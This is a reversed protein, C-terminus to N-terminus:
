GLDQRYDIPTDFQETVDQGLGTGDDFGFADRIEAVTFHQTIEWGALTDISGEECGDRGGAALNDPIAFGIQQALGILDTGGKVSLCIDTFSNHGAGEIVVLRKPAAMGEYTQEIEEIPVLVDVLAAINMSPKDPAPVDARGAAAWGVAVDVQPESLASLAARGGASHGVAAVLETDALGDLEGGADGVLAITEMLVAVDKAPDRVVQGTLLAGRNREIHDPAAVVFGWSAIGRALASADLRYSGFGHSFLVLPFPGDSSSAVDRYTDTMEVDLVSAPIDAPLLAPAAAALDPPLADLQSYSAPELGETAGDQAPYWVEVSRDALQLTTVGVDYPGPERFAADDPGADVQPVGPPLSTTSATTPSSEDTDDGDSCAAATTVLVLSLAAALARAARGRRPVLTRSLSATTDM